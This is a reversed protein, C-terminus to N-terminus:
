EPKPLALTGIARLTTRIRAPSYHSYDSDNEAKTMYITSADIYPAFTERIDVGEPFLHSIDVDHVAFAVWKRFCVSCKGCQLENPDFCSKSYILIDLDRDKMYAVEDPKDMGILPSMIRMDYNLLGLLQQMDNFFRRSKDGMTVPSEGALNGFWLEGWNGNQRMREALTLIIAANRGLMIEGFNKFNLMLEIVQVDQGFKAALRNATEIEIQSYSQGMDLYLPEVPYGSEQAMVYLTSSDMGGTLPIYVRFNPDNVSQVRHKREAMDTINEAFRSTLQGSTLADIWHAAGEVKIRIFDEAIRPDPNLGSGGLQLDANPSDNGVDLVRYGEVALKQLIEDLEPPIQDQWGNEHGRTFDVGVTREAGAKM